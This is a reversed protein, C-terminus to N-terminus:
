PYKGRHRPFVLLSFCVKGGGLILIKTDWLNIGTPYWRSSGMNPVRLLYSPGTEDDKFGSQVTRVSFKGNTTYPFQGGQSEGGLLVASGDITHTNGACFPMPQMYFPVFTNTDLDYISATDMDGTAFNQAAACSEGTLIHM